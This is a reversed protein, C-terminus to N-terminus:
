EGHKTVFPLTFFIAINGRGEGIMGWATSVLAPGSLGYHFNRREWKRAEKRKNAYYLSQGLFDAVEESMQDFAYKLSDFKEKGLTLGQIDIRLFTDKSDQYSLVREYIRLRVSDVSVGFPNFTKHFARVYFITTDTGTGLSDIIVEPDELTGKVLEGFPASYIDFGLYRSTLTSIKEVPIPVTRRGIRSQANVIYFSFVLTLSVLFKFFM